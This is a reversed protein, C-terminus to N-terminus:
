EIVCQIVCLCVWASVCQSICMGGGVWECVSPHLRDCRGEQVVSRRRAVLTRRREKERERECVCERDRERVCVWVSEHRRSAVLTSRRGRSRAM